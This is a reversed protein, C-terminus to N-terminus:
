NTINITKIFIEAEFEYKFIINSMELPVDIIVYLIEPMFNFFRQNVYNYNVPRLLDMGQGYLSFHYRISLACADYRAHM